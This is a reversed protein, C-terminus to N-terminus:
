CHPNASSWYWYEPRKVYGKRVPNNHMYQLKQLFFKETEIVLPMNTRQWFQYMQDEDIIFLKLIRPETQLINEKLAKSTFKKFDRVFGIDDQSSFILHLHNLM